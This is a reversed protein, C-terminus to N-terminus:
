HSLRWSADLAGDEVRVVTLADGGALGRQRILDATGSGNRLVPVRGSVDCEEGRRTWSHITKGDRGGEIRVAAERHRLGHCFSM